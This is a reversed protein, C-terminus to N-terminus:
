RRSKRLESIKDALSRLKLHAVLPRTKRNAKLRGAIENSSKDPYRALYDRIAPLFLEDRSQAALRRAENADKRTLDLIEPDRVTRPRLEQTLPPPSRKSHKSRKTM